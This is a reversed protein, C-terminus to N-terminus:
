IIKVAGTLDWADVNSGFNRGASTQGGRRGEQGFFHGVVLNGLLSDRACAEFLAAGLTSLETINAVSTELKDLVIDSMTYGM